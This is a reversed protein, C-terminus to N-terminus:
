GGCGQGDFQQRAVLPAPQSVDRFHDGGKDLGVVRRDFAQQFRGSFVQAKVALAPREVAIVAPRFPHPFQGRGQPAGDGPQPQIVGQRRGAKLVGALLHAARRLDDFGTQGGAQIRRQQKAGRQLMAAKVRHDDEGAAMGEGPNPQDILFEGRRHHVVGARQALPHHQLFQRQEFGGEDGLARARDEGAGDLLPRPLDGFGGSVGKFQRHVDAAGPQLADARQGAGFRRGGGAGRRDRDFRRRRYKFLRRRIQGVKVM